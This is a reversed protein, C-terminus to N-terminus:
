KDAAAKMAANARDRYDNADKVAANAADIHKQSMVQQADVYDKICQQYADYKETFETPDDVKRVASPLIPKKCKPPATSDQAAASDSDPADAAVASFGTALALVCALAAFRKM